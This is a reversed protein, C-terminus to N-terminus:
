ERILSVSEFSGFELTEWGLLFGLGKDLLITDFLFLLLRSNSLFFWGGFSALMRRLNRYRDVKITTGTSIRTKASGTRM